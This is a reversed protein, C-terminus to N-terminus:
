LGWLSNEKRLIEAVEKVATVEDKSLLDNNKKLNRFNEEGMFSFLNSDEQAHRGVILNDVSIAAQGGFKLEKLYEDKDKISKVTGVKKGYDNMLVVGQKLTGGLVEVGVVAPGSARFICNPLIKM